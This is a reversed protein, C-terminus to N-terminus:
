VTNHWEVEITRRDKTLNSNVSHSEIGREIAQEAIKGVLVSADEPIMFTLFDRGLVESERWGFLEQAQRNWGTVRRQRDWTVMALPASEVLARFRQESIRLENQIQRRETVERSLRLNLRFLVGVVVGAVLLVVIGVAGIKYF